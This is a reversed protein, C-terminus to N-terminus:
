VTAIPEGHWCDPFDHRILWIPTRRFNLQGCRAKQTARKERNYSRCQQLLWQSLGHRRIAPTIQMSPALQEACRTKTSSQGRSCDGAGVSRTIPTTASTSIVGGSLPSLQIATTSSAETPPSQVHKPAAQQELIKCLEDQFQHMMPPTAVHYPATPCYPESRRYNCIGRSIGPANM